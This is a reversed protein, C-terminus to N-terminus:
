KSGGLYQGFSNLFRTRKGRSIRIKKGNVTLEDGEINDVYALNVLTYSNCRVFSKKPLKEEWSNLTSRLQLDEEELHIVVDHNQVELYLIHSTKVKKTFNRTQVMVFSDSNQHELQNQIRKLKMKFNAYTVPKIIFDFANVQYGDVAFQALNTVFVIMVKEDYERMRKAVEMGNMYPMEIDLFVLDFQSHFSNMFSLGDPFQQVHFTLNEEKEFSQLKNKLDDSTEKNDEVIAIQYEM